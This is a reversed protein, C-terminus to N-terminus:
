QAAGPNFIEQMTDLDFLHMEQPVEQVNRIKIKGGSPTKATPAEAATRPSWGGMMTKEEYYFVSERRHALARLLPM